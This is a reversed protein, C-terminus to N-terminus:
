GAIEAELIMSVLTLPLPDTQRVFVTGSDAWTPTLVIECERTQLNPPSGLVETTRAQFGKLKDLAPGAMFGLSQFVRLWVRNINKVRGQGFAQAEVAMPLLQIDSTIPLGVHAKSVPADLTISGGTVTQLPYVAGDGLIAVTEGELHDLGSLVTAPAGSYSLGCDVFFADAQAAFRRSALREVYRKTSGNITRRVIAYLIDEGGEAVCCVSEFVGDTDHSAWAGVNQEPAYTLSLLNGASSVFWAMPYPSKSLAADLIDYGDFRHPTRLSVDGTIWGGAETSYGMERVHGGRAACFLMTTNFLLPQVNNSGVYSRPKANFSSPTLVGQDSTVRWEASSTLILLDQLSVLHKITQNQRSAIKFQLSDDDRTPISYNMNSETGSKSAFVNQPLNSSGAFCRRQEHYTVAAPYYGPTSLATINEPPCYSTDAAINDDVFTTTSSQGIFGFIGGELKYVNYRLVGPTVSATWTVTNLNSVGALNNACSAPASQLSEANSAGVATIVYTHTKTAGASPSTPTAVPATPPAFPSTFAVDAFYWKLAGARRLERVPFGPHVITLVDFSQEFHLDKVRFSNYTTPLEYEGTAPQKYWYISPPAVGTTAGINVYDNGLYSMLDGPTYATLANYPAVTGRLLTAGQTHFRLYQGGFELVMTQDASYSFPRVVAEQGNPSGPNKALRVFSTGARNAVPGHPLPIFNRCLALGTQYKADDIRGWFEPTVEGGAFSRAITRVQAM